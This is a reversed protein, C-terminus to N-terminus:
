LQMFDDYDELELEDMSIDQYGSDDLIEYIQEEDVCDPDMCPEDVSVIPLDEESFFTDFIQKQQLHKNM